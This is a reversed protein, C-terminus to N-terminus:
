KKIKKIIAKQSFRSRMWFRKGLDAIMKFRSVKDFFPIMFQLRESLFIM